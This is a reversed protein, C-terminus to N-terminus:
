GHGHSRCVERHRQPHDNQTADSLEGSNRAARRGARRGLRRVGRCGGCRHSLRLFFRVPNKRHPLMFRQGSNRDLSHMPSFITCPPSSPRIVNPSHRPRHRPVTVHVTYPPSSVSTQSHASFRIRDTSLGVRERGLCGGEAEACTLDFLYWSYVNNDNCQGGIHWYSDAAATNLM